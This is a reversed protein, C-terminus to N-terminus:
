ARSDLWVKLVAGYVGLGFGGILLVHFVATQTKTVYFIHGHSNLSCIHGTSPDPSAPSAYSWYQFLAASLLFAFVGVVMITKATKDSKAKMCIVGAGLVENGGRGYRRFSRAFEASRGRGLEQGKRICGAAFARM